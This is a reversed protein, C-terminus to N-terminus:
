KIVELSGHFEGKNAHLRCVSISRKNDLVFSWRASNTCQANGNRTRTVVCCRREYQEDMSLRAVEERDDKALNVINVIEAEMRGGHTSTASPTPELKWVLRACARDDVVM